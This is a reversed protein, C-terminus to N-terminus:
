NLKLDNKEVVLSFSNIIQALINKTILNLANLYLFKIVIIDGQGTRM